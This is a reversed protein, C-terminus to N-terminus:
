SSYFETFDQLAKEVSISTIYLSQNSKQNTPQYYVVIVVSSNKVIKENGGPEFIYGM